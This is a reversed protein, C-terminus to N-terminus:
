RESCQHQVSSVTALSESPVSTMSIFLHLLPCRKLKREESLPLIHLSAGLFCIVTMYM